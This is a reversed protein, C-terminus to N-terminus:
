DSKPVQGPEAGRLREDIQEAIAEESRGSQEIKERLGPLVQEAQRLRDLTSEPTSPPM